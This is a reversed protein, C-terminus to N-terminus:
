GEGFLARVSDRLWDRWANLADATLGYDAPDSEALDMMLADYLNQADISGQGDQWQLRHALDYPLSQWFAEVYEDTIAEYARSVSANKVDVDELALVLEALEDAIVDRQNLSEQAMARASEIIADAQRLHYELEALQNSLQNTTEWIVQVDMRAPSEEPLHVMVQELRMKMQELHSQRDIKSLVAIDQTSM